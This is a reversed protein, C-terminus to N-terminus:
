AEFLMTVLGGVVLLTALARIITLKSNGPERLLFGPLVRATIAAFAFIFIPKSTYITYVMAVPGLKVAWFGLISAALAVAQNGLALSVAAGRKPLAAIYRIVDRRLCIGIFMASTILFLLTASNWYSMFGLAYKNCVAGIAICLSAFSLLLVPRAHLKIPGDKDWKLSFAIVGTVVAGIALWQRLSVAESLFLMALVAVFVPSTSTLPSIRAIDESKMAQLVLITAV